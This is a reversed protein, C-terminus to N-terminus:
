TNSQDHLDCPPVGKGHFTPDSGIFRIAERSVIVCLAAKTADSPLACTPGADVQSAADLPSGEPSAEPSPALVDLTADGGGADTGADSLTVDMSSGSCAGVVSGAGAAGGAWLWRLLTRKMGQKM